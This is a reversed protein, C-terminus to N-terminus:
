ALDTKQLVFKSSCHKLIFKIERKSISLMETKLLATFFHPQMRVNVILYMYYSSHCDVVLV